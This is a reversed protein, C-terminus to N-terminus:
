DELCDESILQSPSVGLADHLGAVIVLASRPSLEGSEAKHLTSVSVNCLKAMDEVSLGCKERLGKINKCFNTVTHSPKM